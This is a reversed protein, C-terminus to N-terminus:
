HACGPMLEGFSWYLEEGFSMPDALEDVTRDDLLRLGRGGRERARCKSAIELGVNVWVRMWGTSEFEVCGCVYPSLDDDDDGFLNGRM